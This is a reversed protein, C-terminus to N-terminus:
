MLMGTMSQMYDYFNTTKESALTASRAGAMSATLYESVKSYTEKSDNYVGKATLYKLAQPQQLCTGNLIEFLDTGSERLMLITFSYTMAETMLHGVSQLVIILGGSAKLTAALPLGIVPIMSLASIIGAEVITLMTTVYGSFGTSGIYEYVNKLFLKKVIVAYESMSEIGKQAMDTSKQYFGVEIVEPSGFVKLSVLECVKKKFLLFAYLMWQVTTPHNLIYKIISFGLM